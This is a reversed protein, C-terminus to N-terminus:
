RGPVLGSGSLSAAVSVPIDLNGSGNSSLAGLQDSVVDLAISWDGPKRPAVLDIQFSASAGPALEGSLRVAERVDGDASYWTVVLATMPGQNPEPPVDTDPPRRWDATGVNRLGVKLTFAGGAPLELARTAAIAAAFPPLVQVRLPAFTRVPAKRGPQSLGLTLRYM